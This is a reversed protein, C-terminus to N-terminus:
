ISDWNLREIFTPPEYTRGASLRREEWKSTLFLIPGVFFRTLKATFGFEQEVEERLDHINVRTTGTFRKEMAWLAANYM